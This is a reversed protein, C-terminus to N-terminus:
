QHDGEKSEPLHKQFEPLHERFVPDWYFNLSEYLLMILFGIFMGLYVVGAPMPELGVIRSDWQRTVKQFLGHSIIIVYGVILAHTMFRLAVYARPYSEEIKRPVFDIAIHQDNRSAVAAGWYSGVILVMKAAPVTWNLSPDFVGGIESLINRSIVQITAFVITALFLATAMQLVIRDFPHDERLNLSSEPTPDSEDM